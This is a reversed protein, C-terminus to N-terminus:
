TALSRLSMMLILLKLHLFLTRLTLFLHMLRLKPTTILIYLSTGDTDQAIKEFVNFDVSEVDNKYTIGASQWFPKVPRRENIFTRLNLTEGFRDKISSFPNNEMAKVYPPSISIKEVPVNSAESLIMKIGEPYITSSMGSFTHQKRFYAFFTMQETLYWYVENIAGDTTIEVSKFVSVTVPNGDERFLQSGVQVCVINDQDAYEGVGQGVFVALKHLSSYGMVSPLWRSRELKRVSVYPM